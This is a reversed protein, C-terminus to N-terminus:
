KSLLNIGQENVFRMIEDSTIIRAESDLEKTLRTYM